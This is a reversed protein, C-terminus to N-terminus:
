GHLYKKFKELAARRHSVANKEEATLEAYTKKTHAPIFVPDWGWGGSGRPEAALTGKVEGTFTLIKKGNHFGISAMATLERNAENKMLRLFGDNGVAELFHKVFPGPFGNWAEVRLSVDDVFLPKGVIAFAREAKDRAIKELGLSQIEELDAKVAHIPMGLIMEAEKIKGENSTVFYLTEM